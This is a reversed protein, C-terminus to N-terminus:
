AALPVKEPEIIPLAYAETRVALAAKGEYGWINDDLSKAGLQEIVIKWRPLQMGFRIYNSMDEALSRLTGGHHFGPWNGRGFSPRPLRIAKETYEDIFYLWGKRLEFRALRNAPVFTRTKTAPDYHNSGGYWFFRRGHSSIIKILANAHELRAQKEAAVTDKRNM